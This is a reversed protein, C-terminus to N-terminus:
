LPGTWMYRSYVANLTVSIQAKPYSRGPHLYESVRNECEDANSNNYRLTYLPQISTPRHRATM